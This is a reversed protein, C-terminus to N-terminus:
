AAMKLKNLFETKFSDWKEQKSTPSFQATTTSPHLSPDRQPRTCLGYFSCSAQCVNSSKEQIRASCAICDQTIKELRDVTEPSPNLFEIGHLFEDAKGQKTIRRVKVVSEIQTGDGFTLVMKLFVNKPIIDHLVIAMGGASLDSPFGIAPEGFLPPCPVLHVKINSFSRDSFRRHKRRNEIKEKKM